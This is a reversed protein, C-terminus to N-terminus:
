PILPVAPNLQQAPILQNALATSLTLAGRSNVTAESGPVGITITLTHTNTGTVSALSGAAPSPGKFKVLSWTPNASASAVVMFQVQHSIADIPPDKPTPAAPINDEVLTLMTNLCKLADSFKKTYAPDPGSNPPGPPPPPPPGPPYCDCTIQLSTVVPPIDKVLEKEIKVTTNQVATALAALRAKSPTMSIAKFARQITTPAVLQRFTDLLEEDEPPWKSEDTASAAPVGAALLAKVIRAKLQKPAAEFAALQKTFQDPNWKKTNAMGSRATQSMLSLPALANYAYDILLIQNRLPNDPKLFDFLSDLMDYYKIEALAQPKIGGAGAATGGGGGPPKPPKHNGKTLLGNDVPGLASDFWEKLGLDSTLDISSHPHCQEYLEAPTKNKFQDRIEKLSISFSVIETRSATTSISAGAGFSVSQPANTVRMPITVTRLPETIVAGPALSSQDNVALTLDAQATWKNMWNYKAGTRSAISDRLECKVRTVVDNISISKPNKNLPDPASGVIGQLAPTSVCGCLISAGLLAIGAAVSQSISLM